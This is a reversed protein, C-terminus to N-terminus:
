PGSVEPQSLVHTAGQVQSWPDSGAQLSARVRTVFYRTTEAPQAGSTTFYGYIYDWTAGGDTTWLGVTSDDPADKHNYFLVQGSFLQSGTIVLCYESGPNDISVGSFTVETWQDFFDAPLDAFNVTAPSGLPTPAPEVSGSAEPLHIAINKYGSGTFGQALRLKARTFTLRTAGPPVNIVFYESSDYYRGVLNPNLGAWGDFSALLVEDGNVEGSQTSTETISKVTYDLAFQQVNELVNVGAGGNYRRVLPDGATGSWEYRITEPTSDGDRDAVTFEVATPTRETFGLAMQLEALMQKLAVAGLQREMAPGSSDTARSAVYFTSMLGAILVGCVLLAVVLELLTYARNKVMGFRFVRRTGAM